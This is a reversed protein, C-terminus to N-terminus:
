NYPINAAFGGSAPSIERRTETESTAFNITSYARLHDNIEYKARGFLNYAERPSSLWRDWDTKTVSPSCNRDPYVTNPSNALYTCAVEYPNDPSNM